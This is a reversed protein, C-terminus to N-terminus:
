GRRWEHAHNACRPYESIEAKGKVISREARVFKATEPCMDCIGTSVQRLRYEM